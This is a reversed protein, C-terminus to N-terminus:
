SLGRLSGRVGSCCVSFSLSCLRRISSNRAKRSCCFASRSAIQVAQLNGGWAHEIPSNSECFARRRHQVHKCVDAVTRACLSKYWSVSTVKSSKRWTMRRHQSTSLVAGLGAATCSKRAAIAWSASPAICGGGARLHHAHSPYRRCQISSHEVRQVLVAEVQHVQFAKSVEGWSSDSMSKSACRGRKRLSADHVGDSPRRRWSTQQSGIGPHIQLGLRM